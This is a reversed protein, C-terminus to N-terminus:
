DRNIRFTGDLEKDFCKEYLKKYKLHDEPKVSKGNVETKDKSMELDFEEDVSNIYGDNVLEPKLEDLFANLRKMEVKLDSIDIKLGKMNKKLEKMSKRLNKMDMMSSDIKFNHHKFEEGFKKMSEKFQDMNIHVDIDFEPPLPPVVPINKLNKELEKMNEEFKESDFNLEIKQDNLDKLNEELEKMDKEFEDEDFELKFHFFKDNDCDNKFRDIHNKFKDTDFHLRIIKDSISKGDSKLGNIKDYIMETYENIDEDPIRSGDKYVASIDDDDFDVRWESGNDKFSLSKDANFGSQNQASSLNQEVESSCGAFSLIAASAIVTFFIKTYHKKM